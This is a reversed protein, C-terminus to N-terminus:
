PSLAYMVSGTLQATTTTVLCLSRSVASTKMVTGAGNGLAIGGNAAFSWGHAATTSGIIAGSPSSCTATDDELISVVDAASAVLNISCVYVKNTADGSTAAVEVTTASSVDIAVSVKTVATCPDMTRTWMLGNADTNVTANDGTTGASSAAADRRVSGAMFLGGGATEATDEVGIGTALYRLKASISGTGSAADAAYGFPDAGYDQDTALIVRQTGGNWTGQGSAALTGGFTPHVVQAGYMTYWARVIDTTNSVAAPATASGYGGIAVPNVASGPSDHATTGADQVAFVGANTVAHSAVTVTNDVSVSLQNSANVAAGREVGTAGDRIMTYLNRNASMRLNGFQNETIATPAVDDFQAVLGAMAIGTGTSNTGNAIQQHRSTWNTGDSLYNLSASLAVNAQGGAISGDETDVTSPTVAVGGSYFAVPLPTAAAVETSGGNGSMRLNVGLVFQQGAGSDLDFAGAKVMNVNNTADFFGAATGTAPFAAAFSSSTGGAGGFSTVQNGAADVVAVSIAREGGAAKSTLAFGSGDQVRVNWTGAQTAQVAFTGINTVNHAAVTVTNLVATRLSGDTQLSLPSTQANTYSPALTTVAGQALPGSQGATASGQGVGTVGIVNTGTPLANTIGTVATVTAINWTGSQSAPVASQNSAIVVPLSNAMTDQGIIETPTGNVRRVLNIALCWFQGAGTDCDVVRAGQMNTGDNFGVATGSSAGSPFAAGFASATGGSGGFSSVQNGAGDVVSVTLARQAGPALSTLLNGAGDALRTVTLLRGAADTQFGVQNTDAVVLPTANYTGGVMLATTALKASGNIASASSTLRSTATDINGLSTNATTQNASTSAGSPLPLSDVAGVHAWLRGTADVICRARDGNAVGTAVAAADARVCGAMTLTDTDTTATGQNYQTGGGISTIENGAADRLNVHLARFSTLRAIGLEGEALTSTAVDDFAGGVPTFSSVGGAFAGKDTASTGGAAGACNLCNIQLNRNVDMRPVGISGDSPATPPGASYLAGMATVATVGATFASNDPRSSQAWAASSAILLLVLTLWSVRRM